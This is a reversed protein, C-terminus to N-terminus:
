ATSTTAADDVMSPKITWTIPLVYSQQNAEHYVPSCTVALIDMQPVVHEFRAYGGALPDAQTSVVTVTSDPRGNDRVRTLTSTGTRPDFELQYTAVYARVTDHKVPFVPDIVISHYFAEHKLIDWQLALGMVNRPSCILPHGDCVYQDAPPDVRVGVTFCMPALSCQWRVPLCVNVIAMDSVVPSEIRISTRRHSEDSLDILVGENPRSPHYWGFVSHRHRYSSDCDSRSCWGLFSEDPRRFSWNAPDAADLVASSSFAVLMNGGVLEDYKKVNAMYEAEPDIISLSSSSSSSSSVPVEVKQTPVCDHRLHQRLQRHRNLHHEATGMIGCSDTATVTVVEGCRRCLCDTRTSTSQMLNLDFSSEPVQMLQRTLLFHTKIQM